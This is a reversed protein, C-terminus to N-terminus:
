RGPSLPGTGPITFGAALRATPRPILANIALCILLAVMVVPIVNWTFMSLAFSMYTYGISYIFAVVTAVPRRAHLMACYCLHIVFGSVFMYLLAGAFGFDMILGRYITYINTVILDGYVFSDEYIGLPVERTNGALRFISMFTYFGYGTPDKAFPVTADFGARFSFWDSFAYMHGFAYTVLYRTMGAKVDSSDELAYLGRSILSVATLPVLVALALAVNRLTRRDMVYFQGRFIRTVLIGGFFLVIFFFLLGKASEFLMPGLAPLFAGAVVLAAQRKSRASGFLLGGTTVAVYALVIGVKAYINSTLTETYRMLAYSTAIEFMGSWMDRIQFGQAAMNLFFCPISLLAAGAFVLRLFRTNFYEVPSPKERNARHAAPWDFYVLSSLSFMATGAWIFLVCWPNVPVTFLVLLPLATFLFWFLSFLVAPFLWTGVIRRVLVANALIMASFLLALLKSLIV